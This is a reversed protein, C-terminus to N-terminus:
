SKQLDQLRAVTLGTVDTIVDLPLGKELMNLAIEVAKRDAGEELGDEWAYAIEADKISLAKNIKMIM